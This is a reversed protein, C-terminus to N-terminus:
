SKAFQFAYLKASRMVFRLRVPRGALPGVDSRGQWKVVHAVDNFM